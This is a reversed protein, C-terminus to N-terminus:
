CKRDCSVLLKLVESKGWLVTIIMFTIEEDEGYAVFM